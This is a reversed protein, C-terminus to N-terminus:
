SFLGGDGNSRILQHRNKVFDAYSMKTFDLEDGGESVSGMSSPGTNTTVGGGTQFQQQTSGQERAAIEQVMQETKQKALAISAEVQEVTQGDIYDYFAPHITKNVTEEAVRGQIYAKMELYQRELALQAERQEQQHAMEQFKAEFEQTRVELLAKADLDAEAAAKEAATQSALAEAEAAERAATADALETLKAAQEDFQAQLKAVKTAAKNREDARFKEVEDATFTRVTPAAGPLTSLAPEVVDTDLEPPM